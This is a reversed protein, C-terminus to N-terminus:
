LMAKSVHFLSRLARRDRVSSLLGNLEHGQTPEVRYWCAIQGVEGAMVDKAIPEDAAATAILLLPLLRSLAAM